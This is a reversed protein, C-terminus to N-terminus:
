VDKGRQRKKLIEKMTNPQLENMLQHSTACEMFPAEDCIGLCVEINQYLLSLYSM